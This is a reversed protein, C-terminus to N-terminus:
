YENLPASEGAGYIWEVTEGIKSIFDAKLGAELYDVYNGQDQLNNRM